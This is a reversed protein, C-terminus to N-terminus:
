DIHYTTYSKAKVKQLYISQKQYWNKNEGTYLIYSHYIHSLLNYIM